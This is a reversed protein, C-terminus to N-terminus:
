RKLVNALLPIMRRTLLESHLLHTKELEQPRRRRRRQQARRGECGEGSKSRGPMQEVTVEVRM